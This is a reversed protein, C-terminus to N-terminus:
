RSRPMTTVQFKASQDATSSGGIWVTYDAPEVVRRGTVDFFSVEDFGLPFDVPKSEGSNLALRVFGKLSRVPQEVSAGIIRVYCQVIETGRLHGM